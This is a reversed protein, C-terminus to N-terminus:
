DLTFSNYFSIGADIDNISFEKSVKIENLNFDMEDQESSM